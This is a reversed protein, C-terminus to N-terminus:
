GASDFVTSLRLVSRRRDRSCLGWTWAAVTPGTLFLMAITIRLVLKNDISPNSTFHLYWIFAVILGLILIASLYPPLFRGLALGIGAVVWAVAGAAAFIFLYQPAGLLCAIWEGWYDCQRPDFIWWAGFVVLGQVALSVLAVVMATVRLVKRNGNTM